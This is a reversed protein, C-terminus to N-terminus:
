AVGSYTEETATVNLKLDLTAPTNVLLQMNDRTTTAFGQKEASMRYTGPPIQLFAYAGQTDSLQKRVAGNEVNTLTLVATTIALGQSDVINGRLSTTAQSFANTAGALLAIANFLAATFSKTGFMENGERTM